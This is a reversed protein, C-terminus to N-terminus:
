SVCSIAGKLHVHCSVIICCNVATLEQIAVYVMILSFPMFCSSWEGMMNVICQDTGCIPYYEVLRKAMSNVERKLPYKFDEM